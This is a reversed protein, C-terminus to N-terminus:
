GVRLNVNDSRLHLSYQHTHRFLQTHEGELSHKCIMKFERFISRGKLPNREVFCFLFVIEQMEEQISWEEHM